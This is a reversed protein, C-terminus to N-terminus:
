KIYYRYLPRAGIVVAAIFFYLPKVSHVWDMAGAWATIVFLTIAVMFFKILTMDLADIKNKNKKWYEIICM